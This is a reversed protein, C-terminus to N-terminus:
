VLDAVTRVGPDGPLRLDPSEDHYFRHEPLVELTEEERVM